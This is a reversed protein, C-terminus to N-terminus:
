WRSSEGSARAAAIIDEIVQTKAKAYADMDAWQRTSLERKKDEYCRRDEANARLRDRFLLTREIEACGASYVHVHADKERTRFMRHEHWQPERVRLEYAAKELQPRYSSEDSSDAVVVLIDIIPKAALGPTSTSGIHEIQLAVGDLARAIVGAHREFIKPWEPDYDVITIARKEVGGILETQKLMIAM